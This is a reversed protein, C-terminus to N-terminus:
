LPSTNVPVRNLIADSSVIRMGLDQYCALAPYNVMSTRLEVQDFSGAIAHLSESILWRGIGMGRAKRALCVFDLVVIRTDLARNLAKPDLFVVFGVPEGADDACFVHSALEECCREIWRSFMQETGEHALHPDNFFHNLPHDSAAITRLVPVDGPTFPRIRIGAARAPKEFHPIVSLPASLKPSLDVCYFGKRELSRMAGYEAGDIRISLHRYGVRDSAAIADTVLAEAAEPSACHTLLPALRGMPMDYFQAHWSDAHLAYFGTITGDEEVVRQLCRDRDGRALRQSENYSFFQALRAGDIGQRRQQLVKYPYTLFLGRLAKIDDTELDRIIHM